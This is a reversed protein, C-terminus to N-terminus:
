GGLDPRPTLLVVSSDQVVTDLPSLLKEMGKEGLSKEIPSPKDFQAWNAVPSLSYFNRLSDGFMGQAFTSRMGSNAMAPGLDKAVWAAFAAEKGSVVTTTRLYILSVNGKPQPGYEGLNRVYLNRISEVVSMLRQEWAAMAAAAMPPKASDNEMLANMPIVIHYTFEDGAVVQYFEAAPQKAAVNAANRQRALAEFEAIRDPKVKVIIVHTWPTAAEAASATTATGALSFALTLGVFSLALSRSAARYLPRM